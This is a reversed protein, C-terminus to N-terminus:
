SSLGLSSLPLVSSSSICVAPFAPLSIKGLDPSQTLDDFQGTLFMNTWEGVPASMSQFLLSMSLIDQTCPVFWNGHAICLGEGWAECVWHLCTGNQNIVRIERTQQLQCAPGGACLSHLSGSCQWEYWRHHCDAIEMAESDYVIHPGVQMFFVAKVVHLKGSVEVNGTSAQIRNRSILGDSRCKLTMAM